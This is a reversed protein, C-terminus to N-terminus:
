GNDAVESNVANLLDMLRGLQDLRDADMGWAEASWVADVGLRDAAKVYDVLDAWNEGDYYASGVSVSIRM